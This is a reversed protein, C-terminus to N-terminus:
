EERKSFIFANGESTTRYEILMDKLLEAHSDAIYFTITSDDYHYKTVKDGSLPESVVEIDKLFYEVEESGEKSKQLGVLITRQNNPVEAKGFLTELEDIVSRHVLNYINFNDVM